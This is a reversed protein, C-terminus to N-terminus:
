SVAKPHHRQWFWVLTWAAAIAIVTCVIFAPSTIFHLAGYWFGPKPVSIVNKTVSIVQGSKDFVDTVQDVIEGAPGVVSQVLQGGTLIGAGVGAVTRTTVIKAAPPAEVTDQPEVEVQAAHDDDEGDSVSMIGLPMAVGMKAKVARILDAKVVHKGPCDKHTTAADEKHFRITDPQLDLWAHLAALAAIVNSKTGGDFADHDFDGVIEVGISQRNWSPSHTGTKTLDNFVCIGQSNPTIFLHPGGNWKLGKYYGELNTLWQADSIPNKREAYGAYTKLDPAGTNHVTVFKCWAPPEIGSLYKPFSAATFIKKVAPWAM